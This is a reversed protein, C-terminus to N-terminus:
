GHEETTAINHLLSSSAVVSFSRFKIAILNAAFGPVVWDGGLHPVM